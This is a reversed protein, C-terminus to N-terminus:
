KFIKDRLLEYEKSNGTWDRQFYLNTDMFIWFSTMANTTMDPHEEISNFHNIYSKLETSDINQQEKKYLNYLPKDSKEMGQCFPQDQYFVSVINDKVHYCKIYELHGGFEGCDMLQSIILLTDFKNTFKLPEIKTNTIAAKKNKIMVLLELCRNKGSKDIPIAKLCNIEASNLLEIKKDKSLHLISKESECSIIYNYYDCALNYLSSGLFYNLRIAEKQFAFYVTDFVNNQSFYSAKYAYLKGNDLNSKILSDLIKM